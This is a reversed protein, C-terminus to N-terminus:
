GTSLASFTLPSPPTPLLPQNAPRPLQTTEILGQDWSHLPPPSVVGVSIGVGEHMGAEMLSGLITFASRVLGLLTKCFQPLKATNASSADLTHPPHPNAPDSLRESGVLRGVGSEGLMVTTGSLGRSGALGQQAKLLHGVGEMENGCVWSAGM